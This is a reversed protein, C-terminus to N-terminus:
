IAKTFGYQSVLKIIETNGTLLAYHMADCGNKNKVQVDVGIEILLKIVPINKKIIAMQLPTKCKVTDEKSLVNASLENIISIYFESDVNKNIAQNLKTIKEMETNNQENTFNYFGIQRSLKVPLM